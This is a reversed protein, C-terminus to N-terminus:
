KRAVSGLAANGAFAASAPPSGCTVPASRCSSMCRKCKSGGGGGTGCGGGSSPALASSLSHAGFVILKIDVTITFRRLARRLDIDSSESPARKTSSFRPVVVSWSPVSSPSPPPPPPTTTTAASDPFEKSQEEVEDPADDAVDEDEDSGVVGFFRLRRM